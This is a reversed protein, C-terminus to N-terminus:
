STRKGASVRSALDRGRLTENDDVRADDSKGFEAGSGPQRRDKDESVSEVTAGDPQM